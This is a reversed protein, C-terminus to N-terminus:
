AWGMVGGSPASQRRMPLTAKVPSVPLIGSPRQSPASSRQASHVYRVPAESRWREQSCSWPTRTGRSISPCRPLSTRAASSLRPLTRTQSSRSETSNYLHAHVAHLLQALEDGLVGGLRERAVRERELQFALAVRLARRGLQPRQELARRVIECRM